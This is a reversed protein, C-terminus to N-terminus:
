VKGLSSFLSSKTRSKRWFRLFDPRPPYCLRSPDIGEEKHKVHCWRTAVLVIPHPQSPQSSNTLSSATAEKGPNRQKITTNNQQSQRTDSDINRLKAVRERALSSSPSRM